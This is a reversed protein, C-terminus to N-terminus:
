GGRLRRCAKAMVVRAGEIGSYAQELAALLEKRELYLLPDDCKRWRVLEKALGHSLQDLRARRGILSRL